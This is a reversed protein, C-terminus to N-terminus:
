QFTGTRWYEKLSATVGNYVGPMKFVERIESYMVPIGYETAMIEMPPDIIEEVEQPSPITVRTSCEKALASNVYTYLREKVYQTQNKEPYVFSVKFCVGEGDAMLEHFVCEEPIVDIPKRWAKALKSIYSSVPDHPAVLLAILAFSLPACGIVIFATMVPQTPNLYSGHVLIAFLLGVMVAFIIGFIAYFSAITIPRLLKELDEAKDIYDPPPNHRRM